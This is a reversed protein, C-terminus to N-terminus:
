RPSEIKIDDETDSDINIVLNDQRPSSKTPNMPTSSPKNNNATQDANKNMSISVDGMVQVMMQDLLQNVKAKTLRDNSEKAIQLKVDEIRNLLRSFFFAAHNAM